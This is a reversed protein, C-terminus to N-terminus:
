SEQYFLLYPVRPPSHSLVQAETVVSITRDDCRVWTQSGHNYVDSIYHGKVAEEGDHYMVAFLKYVRIRQNKKVDSSFLDKSLELEIPYDTKKMVKKCGGTKNYVFRKLHLILVPPLKQLAVHSYAEVEQKTKACTYGQIPEKQTMEKLAESVSTVNDSQIDLQLTFFPQISASTKSGNATLFSKIQGGLLDSIPTKHEAVKRTVMGKHKSGIVQWEDEGESAEGNEKLEPDVANIHNKKEYNKIIKVMEEHMGNLIFSLFEEADEQQGKLCDSKLDRLMDYIFDPQFPQGPQFEEQPSDSLSFEQAVKMMSDIVPTASKGRELGQTLPLHHLLTYFPPSALLAQLTAHIYCWNRRNILGRPQLFVPQFSLCLQHLHKGLVLALKDEEVSLIEAEEEKATAKPTKDGGNEVSAKNVTLPTKGGSHQGRSVIDAWSRPASASAVIESKHVEPMIKRNVASATKTNFTQPTIKAELAEPAIKANHAQPTIKADLIEPSIKTNLAQSTIKANIVEPATNTNLVQPAIKTAVELAIKMNLAQTAIKADIAEVNVNTDLKATQLSKQEFGNQKVLPITENEITHQEKRELTESSKNIDADLEIVVVTQQNQFNSPVFCSVAPNLKFTSAAPTYVQAKPQINGNVTKPPECYTVSQNYTNYTHQGLTGNSYIPTAHQVTRSNLTSYNHGYNMLPLSNLAQSPAGNNVSVAQSYHPDAVDSVYNTIKSGYTEFIPAHVNLSSSAGKVFIKEEECSNTWPFEIEPSLNSPHLLGNLHKVQSDDLGELNLFLFNGDM